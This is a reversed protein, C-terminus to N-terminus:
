ETEKGKLYIFAFILKINMKTCLIFFGSAKEYQSNEWTSKLSKEYTQREFARACLYIHIKIQNEM